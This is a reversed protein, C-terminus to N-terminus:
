AARRVRRAADRRDRAEAHRVAAAGFWAADVDDADVPEPEPSRVQVWTGLQMMRTSGGPVRLCRVPDRKAVHRPKLTERGADTVHWEDIRHNKKSVRSSRELLGQRVLAALSAPPAPWPARGHEVDHVRRLPGNQAARLAALMRSTM